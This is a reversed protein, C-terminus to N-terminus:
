LPGRKSRDSGALIVVAPCDGSSAPWLLTGALDTDGSSFRVEEERVGNSKTAGGATSDEAAFVGCPLLLAQILMM